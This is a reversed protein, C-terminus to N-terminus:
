KGKKEPKYFDIVSQLAGLLEPLNTLSYRHTDITLTTEELRLFLWELATTVCGHVAPLPTGDRENFIRAAVMEATCQGLGSELDEKKAEVICLLPAQIESRFPSKAIIFDCYGDLGQAADVTLKAGSFVVVSREANRWMEKLVPVVIYESKAKENRTPLLEADALDEQLRKSPPLPKIATFLPEYRVELSFKTVASKLSTFKQYSM